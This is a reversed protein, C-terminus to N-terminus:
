TTIGASFLPLCFPAKQPQTIVLPNWLLDSSYLRVVRLCVTNRSICQSEAEKPPQKKSLSIYKYKKKEAELNKTPPSCVQLSHHRLPWLMSPDLKQISTGLLCQRVETGQPM